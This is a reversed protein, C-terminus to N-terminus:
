APQAFIDFVDLEMARALRAQGQDGTVFITCDAARACVVHMIDLSRCLFEETHRESIRICEKLIFSWDPETRLLRSEVIDLALNSLANELGNKSLFGRGAQATLGNCVELEQLANLEIQPWHGVLNIVRDSGREKVYVKVLAGSDFYPKM